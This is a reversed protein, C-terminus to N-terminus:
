YAGLFWSTIIEDWTWFAYCGNLMSDPCTGGVRILSNKGYDDRHFYDCCAGIGADAIHFPIDNLGFMGGCGFEPVWGCGVRYTLLIGTGSDMWIKDCAGIDWFASTDVTYVSLAMAGMAQGGADWSAHGGIKTYAKSILSRAIYDCRAGLWYDYFLPTRLGNLIFSGASLRDGARGGVYIMALILGVSSTDCHNLVLDFYYLQGWVFRLHLVVM